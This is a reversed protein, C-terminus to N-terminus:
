IMLLQREKPYFLITFLSYDEQEINFSQVGLAMQKEDVLKKYLISSESGSLHQAIYNIVASDRNSM